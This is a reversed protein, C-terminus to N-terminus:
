KEVFVDPRNYLIVSFGFLNENRLEFRAQSDANHEDSAMGYKGPTYKPYIARCNSLSAQLVFEAM